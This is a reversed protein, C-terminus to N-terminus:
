EFKKLIEQVANQLLEARSRSSESGNLRRSIAAVEALDLSDSWLIGHNKAMSESGSQFGKHAIMWGVVPGYAARFWAPVHKEVTPNQNKVQTLTQAFERIKEIGVKSDYKKCQGVVRLPGHKGSFVHLTGPLIISAFFDIGGENGRPTLLVRDAGALHSIVCGLAEYQRDTLLDIKRVISPRARIMSIKRKEKATSEKSFYRPYWSVRRASQDRVVFLPSLGRRKDLDLRQLLWNWYKFRNKYAFGEADFRSKGLANEAAPILLEDFELVGSAFESRYLWDFIRQKDSAM